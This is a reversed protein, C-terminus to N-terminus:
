SPPPGRGSKPDGGTIIRSSRGDMRFHFGGGMSTLSSTMASRRQGLANKPPVKRLLLRMQREDWSGQHIRQAPDAGGDRHARDPRLSRMRMNSASWAAAFLSPLAAMSEFSQPTEVRAWPTEALAKMTPRGSPALAIMSKLLDSLDSGIHVPLRYRAHLIQDYVHAETTVTWPLAGAVMVYLVVGLSWVDVARGDYDIGRVLEPAAYYITGCRTSLLSNGHLTHCLGLDAIKPQMQADLLINDPKIDRHAINRDHLYIMADLLDRFM